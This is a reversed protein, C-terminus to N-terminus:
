FETRNLTYVNWDKESNMGIKEYFCVAKENWAACKLEIQECDNELAIQKAKEIFKRGLGCGRHSRQIYLDEIYMIKRGTFTTYKWFYNMIGVPKNNALMIYCCLAESKILEALRNKTLTFIELSNHHIMLEKTLMYATESDDSSARVLMINM